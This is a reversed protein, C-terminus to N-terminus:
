GVAEEDRREGADALGWMRLRRTARAFAVRWRFGPFPWRVAHEAIDAKARNLRVRDMPTADAAADRPTPDRPRRQWMGAERRRVLSARRAQPHTARRTFRAEIMRRCDLLAADGPPVLSSCQLHAAM